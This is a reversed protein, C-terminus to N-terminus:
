IKENVYIVQFQVKEEEEEEEEEENLWREIYISQVEWILEDILGFIRVYDFKKM